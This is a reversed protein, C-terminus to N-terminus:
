RVVVGTANYLVGNKLIFLQNDKIFKHVKVGSKANECGTTIAPGNAREVIQFRDTIVSNPEAFFTYETGEYIDTTENTENDLLALANDSRLHSFVMTYTTEEGSRIGLHTGIFSNTADVALQDVGAVSFINLAGSMMKRADSGNEYEPSNEESELLYLNDVLGGGILTVCLSSISESENADRAIVHLPGNGNDEYNGRWVLKSYDLTIKPNTGTTHVCFGQMPAISTPINESFASKLAKVKNIPIHIYQGPATYTEGRMAENALDAINQRSGTNFLYIAGEVDDFDELDFKTIDIPATYSNAIMNHCVGDGEKYYLKIEQPKANSVLEGEYIVKLGDPNMYQSTSYGMFPKLVGKKRNNVWDGKLTDWEYIFSETFISKAAVSNALPSGVFQWTGVDNRNDAEMDYYAISFLEVTAQPMTGTYEPSIRLYGTQGKTESNRASDAKLILNEKTAGSIGGEGITLGGTPAITVSGTTINM